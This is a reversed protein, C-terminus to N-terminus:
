DLTPGSDGLQMNASAAVCSTSVFHLSSIACSWEFPGLELVLVAHGFQCGFRGMIANM